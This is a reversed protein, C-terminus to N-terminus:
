NIEMEKLMSIIIEKDNFPIIKDKITQHKEHGKGAVLIHDGRKGSSLARKIAEKRNLLIEYQKTGTKKVGKEIDSIISMPDESRPNDSTLIIWDALFGAVEGMRPRKTKDRDGGAGFVLIIRGKSLERATELLNKLADDTHAYDVFINLGLSNEIKEFRGPVMRLSAVGKKIAFLPINLSLATSVSALINYINPKGLLPSSLEMKGGPYKIFLKIGEDNFEYEECKVTAPNRLGFSIIGTSIQSMLKKGWSNDTNIVAIRNKRKSIFLRKKAEFYNEMSHHYDLHDGSLNTFVTVDFEIGEVRKLVLSHSSVEIVCHTIGSDLMEKLMRQLDPAEPTTREAPIEENMGRYSITGIVGPNFNAEKIIRELLYAVTTKGKTGTVGIIKMNKSPHSYYNDSCLALTKRADSVQIWTKTFNPPKAQESIIAIAGRDIAENIFNYGNLKEGKLAAFIYGPHIKRSNYSIGSIEENKGTLKLIPSGKLIDELKM